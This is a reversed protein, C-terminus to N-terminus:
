GGEVTLPHQLKRCRAEGAARVDAARAGSSPLGGPRCVLVLLEAEGPPVGRGSPPRATVKVGGDTSVEVEVRLAVAEDGRLIWAGAAVPGEVRSLPRLAATVAGGPVLRVPGPAAGRVEQAGSVFVPEYEPLSPERGPRLWLGLLAAALALGGAAAPWRRRRPALPIVKASSARPETAAGERAAIVREALRREGDAGLPAFVVLAEAAEPSREALAHLAALDAETATGAALKEWRPDALVDEREERALAGLAELMPDRTSM